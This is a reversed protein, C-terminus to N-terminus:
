AKRYFGFRERIKKKFRGKDAVFQAKQRGLKEVAIKSADEFIESIMSTYQDAKTEMYDLINTM